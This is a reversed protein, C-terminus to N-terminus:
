WLLPTPKRRPLSKRGKRLDDRQSETTGGWVGVEHNRLAYELCSLQLPCSACIKKATSLNTYKHIIKTNTVEIEQPFFLEPDVTSCAPDGSYIFAPLQIQKSSLNM